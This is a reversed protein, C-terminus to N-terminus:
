IDIARESVSTQLSVCTPTNKFNISGVLKITVFPQQRNPFPEAGLVSFGSSVDMVVEESNLQVWTAGNDTSRRIYYTDGLNATVVEYAWQNGGGSPQFAVGWCDKGSLPISTGPVTGSAGTICYYNGGTRLNRSIDEMIFSLNDMVSRMDRSKQHLSSANLLAGMGAMIVVLFLSIAIMTEIITYGRQNNHKNQM